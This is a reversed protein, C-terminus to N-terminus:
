YLAKIFCSGGSGGSPEREGGGAAPPTATKRAPAGPDRIEGNKVGDCDGRGGDEFFLVVRDKEMRAGTKGDYFFPYWLDEQADGTKGYKWYTDAMTGEPLFLTVMAMDEIGSLTFDLMGLDYSFGAPVGAEPATIRCSTMVSREPGALTFYGNGDATPMSVVHAQAADPVGDQNGDYLPNKGSPGSELADSVGDLDRKALVSVAMKKRVPAGEATLFTVYFADKGTFAPDPEYLLQHAEMRVRGSEPQSWGLVGADSSLVVVGKADMPSEMNQVSFGQPAQTVSVKVRPTTMWDTGTRNIPTGAVLGRPNAAIYLFTVEGTFGAPPTYAVQGDVVALQGKKGDYSGNELFYYEHDDPDFSTDPWYAHYLTLDEGGPDTDNGLVHIFLTEGSAVTLPAAAVFGDHVGEPEVDELVEERLAWFTIDGTGTKGKGDSITYDITDKVTALGAVYDPRLLLAKGDALIHVTGETAPFDVSRGWDTIRLPDGDPDSDNELVDHLVLWHNRDTTLYTGDGKDDNAKPPDNKMVQVILTATDTGCDADGEDQRDRVVLPIGVHGVYDANPTFRLTKGNEVVVEGYTKEFAEMDEIDHRVWLTEDDVDTDNELPFVTVPQGQWIQVTDGAAVPPDNVPTVTIAVSATIVPHADPDAAITPDAVRYTLSYSGHDDALPSFYLGQGLNEIEGRFGSAPSFSLIQLPDSDPDVDNALVDLFLATDEKTTFVDDAPHPTDNVPVVQVVVNARPSGGDHTVEYVFQDSEFYNENSVYTVAFDPPSIFVPPDPDFRGNVPGHTEKPTLVLADTVNTLRDNGLLNFTTRGDETVSLFDPCAVCDSPLTVPGGTLAPSHNGYTDTFFLRFYWNGDEMTGQIAGSLVAKRDLPMWDTFPGDPLNGYQLMGGALDLAIPRGVVWRFLVLNTGDEKRSGTVHFEKPMPPPQADWMEATAFSVRGDTGGLSVLAATKVTDNDDPDPLRIEVLDAGTKGYLLHNEADEVFPNGGAPSFGTPDFIWVESEPTGWWADKTGGGIYFRIADREFCAAGMRARSVPFALQPTEGDGYIASAATDAPDFVEWTALYGSGDYGGFIYIRGDFATVAPAVRKTKLRGALSWRDADPHYRYITDLARSQKDTGGLVFLADGARIMKHSAIQVPFNKKRSWVGTRPNLSFVENRIWFTEARYGGVLLIEWPDAADKRSRGAAANVVTGDPFHQVEGWYRGEGDFYRCIDTADRGANEYGGLVYVRNELVATAAGAFGKSAPPVPQWDPEGYTKTGYCLMVLIGALGYRWCRKWFPHMMSAKREGRMPANEPFLVPRQASATFWGCFVPDPQLHICIAM